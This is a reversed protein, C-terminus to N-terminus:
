KKSKSAAKKRPKMPEDCCLIVHEEVCGCDEDVTVVFGCVSCELSDGKVSKRATKAKKAPTAKEATSAKTMATTKKVPNASKVPM